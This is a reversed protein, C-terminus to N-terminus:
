YRRKKVGLIVGIGPERKNSLSFTKKQGTILTDDPFIYFVTRIVM